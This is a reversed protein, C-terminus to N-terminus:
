IVDDWRTRLYVVGDWGTSVLYDSLLALNVFYKDGLNNAETMSMVGGNSCITSFLALPVVSGLTPNM